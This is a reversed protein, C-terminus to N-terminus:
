SAPELRKAIDEYVEDVETYMPSDSPWDWRWIMQGDKDVLVYTHGPKKGPHMSSGLAEYESSVSRDEDVAVISTIGLRRAEAAVDDIPDVMISVLVV